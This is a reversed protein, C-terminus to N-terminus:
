VFRAGNVRDDNWALVTGFNNFHDESLQTRLFNWAISWYLYDFVPNGVLQELELYPRLKELVQPTGFGVAQDKARAPGVFVLVDLDEKIGGPYEFLLPRFKM